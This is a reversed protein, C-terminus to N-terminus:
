ETDDAMGVKRCEVVDGNVMKQYYLDGNYSILRIRIDHDSALVDDDTIVTGYRLVDDPNADYGELPYAFLNGNRFYEGDKCRDIVEGWDGYERKIGFISDDEVYCNESDALASKVADNWDKIRVKM